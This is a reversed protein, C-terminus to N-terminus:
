EIESITNMKLLTFLSGRFNDLLIIITVVQTMSSLWSKKELFEPRLILYAGLQFWLSVIMLNFKRLDFTAKKLLDLSRDHSGFYFKKPSRFNSYNEINKILLDRSKQGNKMLDFISINVIFWSFKQDWLIWGRLGWDFQIMCNVIWYVLSNIALSDASDKALM